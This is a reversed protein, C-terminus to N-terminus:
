QEGTGSDQAELAYGCAKVEGTEPDSFDPDFEIKGLTTGEISRRFTEQKGCDYLVYAGEKEGLLLFREDPNDKNLPKGDGDGVTAWQNQFGVTQLLANGNGNTAIDAAGHVMQAVLILGLGIGFLAGILVKMGARGTNRRRMLRFPVLLGFVAVLAVAVLLTGGSLEWLTGFYVWYAVVSILAGATAAIWPQERLRHMLQGASGRTALNLLWGLAVLLGVGPLAVLFLEILTGILRGFITAQDLGAQEPTIGFVGYVQALGLYLMAYMGVAVPVAVSGIKEFVELVSSKATEREPEPAAPPESLPPVLAQEPPFPQYTM